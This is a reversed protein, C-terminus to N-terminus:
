LLDIAMRQRAEQSRREVQNLSIEDSNRGSLLLAREEKTMMLWLSIVLPLPSSLTVVIRQFEPTYDLWKLVLYADTQCPDCIDCELNLANNFSAYALLLDISARAIFTILVIGCAAVFRRRQATAAALTMGMLLKAKDSRMQVKRDFGVAARTQGRSFEAPLFVPVNDAKYEIEGLVNTLRREARGFMAVAVPIFVMYAASMIVLVVAELMNHVSVATIATTRIGNVDKFLATSVDTSNGQADCASAAQNYVSAAQVSYGAAVHMSLLGVASCVVVVAAIVRHLKELAYEGICEFVDVQDDMDRAQSNYSHSAHNSLRHLLMLTPIILCMFEVPYHVDFVAYWQSSSALLGSQQQATTGPANAAYQLAIAQMYAGWAIAGMVSGACVLGSFWGLQGWIRDVRTGAGDRRRWV